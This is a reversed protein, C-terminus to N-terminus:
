EEKPQPDDADLYKSLKDVLKDYAKDDQEFDSAFRAITKPSIFMFTDAQQVQDIEVSSTQGCPTETIKEHSKKDAFFLRVTVQPAGFLEECIFLLHAIKTEDDETKQKYEGNLANLVSRAIDMSSGEKLGPLLQQVIQTDITVSSSEVHVHKYFKQVEVFFGSQRILKTWDDYDFLSKGKLALAKTMAGFLVTVSDFLDKTDKQLTESTTSYYINGTANLRFKVGEESDPGSGEASASLAMAMKPTARGAKQVNLQDAFFKHASLPESGADVFTGIKELSPINATM